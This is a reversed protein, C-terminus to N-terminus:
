ARETVFSGRSREFFLSSFQVGVAWGALEQRCRTVRAVARLIRTDIKIVQGLTLELSSHFKMGRLSIDSTRGTYPESQPWQTRFTMPQDNPIRMIARRGEEDQGQKILFLPSQCNRCFAAPSVKTDCENLSSCFGCRYVPLSASYDVERLAERTPRFLEPGSRTRDYAARNQPNTLTAYAENIMAAHRVDGGLDPHLRLKQMMAQYSSRIVERPADPQVHLIRYYNRRNKM